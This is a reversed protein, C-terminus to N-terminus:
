DISLPCGATYLAGGAKRASKRDEKPAIILIAAREPVADAQDEERRRWFEGGYRGSGHGAGELSHLDRSV